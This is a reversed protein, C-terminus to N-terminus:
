RLDSTVQLALFRHNDAREVETGKIFLSRLPHPNKRFDLIIERTKDTNLVLDNEEGYVITNEVLM